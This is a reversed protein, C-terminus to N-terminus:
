CNDVEGKLTGVTGLWSVLELSPFDALENNPDVVGEVNENPLGVGDIGAGDELGGNPPNPLLVVLEGKPL